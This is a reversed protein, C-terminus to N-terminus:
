AQTPMLYRAAIDVIAAVILAGFLAPFIRVGYFDTGWDSLSGLYESAVVGGVVAGVAPLLGEYSIRQRVIYQVLFGVILAGAIIVVYGWTEM